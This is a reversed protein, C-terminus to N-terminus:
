PSCLRLRSRLQMFLSRATLSFAKGAYGSKHPQHPWMAIDYYPIKAFGIQVWTTIMIEFGLSFSSGRKTEREEKGLCMRRERKKVRFGIVDEGARGRWNERRSQSCSVRGRRSEPEGKIAKGKWSQSWNEGGGAGQGAEGRWSGLWSQGGRARGKGRQDGREPHERKRERERNLKDPHEM